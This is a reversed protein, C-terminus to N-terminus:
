LGSAVRVAQRYRKITHRLLRMQDSLQEAIWESVDNSQPGEGPVLGPHAALIANEAVALDHDLIDIVAMQPMDDLDFFETIGANM